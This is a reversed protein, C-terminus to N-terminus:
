KRGRATLFDSIATAAFDPAEYHVLHGVGPVVELRAETLRSALEHQKPLATIDDREAVILMTHPPLSSAYESVDAEVSAKFAELVSARSAFSSFYSDHQGHIWRRLARDKTKAMTVSMIRVIARNRLLAQGAREPLAASVQYYLVALRTMLGRPGQLANAAIPNVLICRSQALGEHFAASVVISGFSHGLVTTKDDAGITDLFSRLWLAYPRIRPEDVSTPALPDTSGFGPLDPIVIRIKPGLKAVFPELGHHDGRFGHVLVLDIPGNTPGYNWWATGIEGVTERHAHTPIADLERAYFDEAPMAELTTVSSVGLTFGTVSSWKGAQARWSATNSVSVM